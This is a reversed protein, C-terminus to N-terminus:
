LGLPQDTFKSIVIVPGGYLRGSDGGGVEEWGANQCEEALWTVEALISGCGGTGLRNSGPSWPPDLSKPCTM